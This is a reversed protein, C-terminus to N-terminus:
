RGLPYHYTPHDERTRAPEGSPTDDPVASPSRRPATQSRRACRRLARGTARTSRGRGSVVAGM